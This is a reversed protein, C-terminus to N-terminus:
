PPTPPTPSHPQPKPPPPTPSHPQPKPPPSTPSHSQPQPQPQPTTPSPLPSPPGAREGYAEYVGQRDAGAKGFFAERRCGGRIHPNSVTRTRAVTRSGCYASSGSAAAPIRPLTPPRQAKKGRSGRAESYNAAQISIVRAQPNDASEDRSSWAEPYVTTDARVTAAPTEAPGRIGRAQPHDAPRKIGRSQRDANGSGRRGEGEGCRPREEGYTSVATRPAPQHHSPPGGGRGGESGGRGLKQNDALGENDITAEINMGKEVKKKATVRLILRANHSKRQCALMM